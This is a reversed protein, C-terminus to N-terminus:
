HSVAQTDFSVWTKEKEDAVAARAEAGQEAKPPVEKGLFRRAIHCTTVMWVFSMMVSAAKKTM